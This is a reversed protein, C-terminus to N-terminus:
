VDDIHEGREKEEGEDEGRKGHITIAIIKCKMKAGDEKELMKQLGIRIKKRKKKEDEQEEYKIM